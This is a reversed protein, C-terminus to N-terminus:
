FGVGAIFRLQPQAPASGFVYAVGFAPRLALVGYGLSVDLRLEAGAAGAGFLPGGSGQIGTVAAGEVFPAASLRGLFVPWMGLGRQIRLLPFDGELSLQFASFGPSPPVGEDPQLGRVTFPGEGLMLGDRRRTIAGAANVGVSGGLRWGVREAWTAMLTLAGGQTVASAVELGLLRTRETRDAGWRASRRWGGSLIVESEAAASVSGVASVGAYLRHTTPSGANLSSDLTYALTASAQQFPVVVDKGAAQGDDAVKRGQSLLVTASPGTGSFPRATWQYLLSAGVTGTAPGYDASVMYLHNMRADWTGTVAGLALDKGDSGVVPLWWTPVLSPLASYPRIPAGSDPEALDPGLRWLDDVQRAWAAREWHAGAFPPDPLRLARPEFPMTVLVYGDATYASFALTSGDPSPAPFFAGNVANTIQYLRGAALEYAYLNSVGTRDSEFLLYRGDGTFVPNAVSAAETVLAAAERLDLRKSGGTGGTVGSVLAIGTQGGGAWQVALRGGGPEWTVGEAYRGGDGALWREVEGVALRGGEFRLAAVAVHSTMGTGDLQVFAVRGGDPSVAPAAARLGRTLRQVRGTAVEVGFLDFLQRGTAGEPALAAFVMFRGDPTWDFGGSAGEAVVRERGTALDVVRIAAGVPGGAAQYALLRGDPSYRPRFALWGQSPLREFPTVGRADIDARQAAYRRELSQRWGEYLERLSEGTARTLATGPPATTGLTANLRHVEHVAADGFREALYQQWSYGYLYVTGAPTWRQLDYRGLAQDPALLRGELVAARLFMDWFSAAGRGRNLLTEEYSAYGEILAYSETVNPTSLLPVHGFLRRITGYVGGAMDLHVAHAYEHTFLLELWDTMTGPMGATYAWDLPPVTFLIIQNYFSFYAMGNALDAADQLVVHTKSALEHGIRASVVPHVREAVVAVRRALEEYGEPFHVFFHPTELTFWARGTPDGSPRSGFAQGGTKGAERAFAVGSGFGAVSFVAAVLFAIFIRPGPKTFFRQRGM